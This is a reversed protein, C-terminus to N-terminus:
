ARQQQLLGNWCLKEWVSFTLIPQSLSHLLDFAFRRVWIKAAATILVHCCGQSFENALESCLQSLCNHRLIHQQCESCSFISRCRICLQSVFRCLQWTKLLQEKTNEAQHPL